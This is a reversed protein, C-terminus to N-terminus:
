ISNKKFLNAGVKHCILFQQLFAAYQFSTSNGKISYPLLQPQVLFLPLSNLLQLTGKSISLSSSTNNYFCILHCFFSSSKWSGTIRIRWSSNSTRSRRLSSYGGFQIWTINSEGKNMVCMYNIWLKSHETHWMESILLSM